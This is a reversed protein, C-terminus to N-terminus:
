GWGLATGGALGGMGRWLRAGGRGGQEQDGGAQVVARGGTGIKLRAARGPPRSALGAAASLGRDRRSHVAGGQGAPGPGPQFTRVRVHRTRAPASAPSLAGRRRQGDM